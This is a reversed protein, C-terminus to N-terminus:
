FAVSVKVATKEELALRASATGWFASVRVVAVMRVARPWTRPLRPSSHFKRLTATTTTCPCSGTARNWSSPWRKKSARRFKWFFRLIINKLALIPSVTSARTTRAKFGSLVEVFDYQTHTPLANRRAYVGISAGRPINYDFKIYAAESQYFQMNWYGYQPISESLKQGLAIQSFTTGDPPFTRAPFTKGGSLSDSSWLSFQTSPNFM